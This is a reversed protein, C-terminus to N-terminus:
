CVVIAGVDRQARMALDEAVPQWNMDCAAVSFGGHELHSPEIARCLPMPQRAHCSTAAHYTDKVCSNCRQRHGLASARTSQVASTEDTRVGEQPRLMGLLLPKLPPVLLM